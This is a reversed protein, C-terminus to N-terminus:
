LRLNPARRYRDRGIDDFAARTRGTALITVEEADRVARCPLGPIQDVQGGSEPEELARRSQCEDVVVLRSGGAQERQHCRDLPVGCDALPWALGTFRSRCRDWGRTSPGASM